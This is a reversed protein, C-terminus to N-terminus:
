MRGRDQYFRYRALIDDVYRRTTPFDIAELLDEGTAKTGMNTAGTWRDVRKRGANYEALAFPLPNEKSKWREMAKSLYWTGADLNTKPDFLDAPAFTEIHEARAWDLAAGETVQLLGREGAQGVKEPHFSSERWAIAKVLMPDLGRKAAAQRMLGDFSWYRPGAVWEAAEYFPDPSLWLVLSAAACAGLGVVIVLTRLFRLM